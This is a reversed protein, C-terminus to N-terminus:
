RHFSNRKDVGEDLADGRGAEREDLDNNLDEAASIHGFGSDFVDILLQRRATDTTTSHLVLICDSDRKILQLNSYEM